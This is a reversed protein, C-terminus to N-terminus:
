KKEEPMNVEVVNTEEVLAITNGQKSLLSSLLGSLLLLALWAIGAMKMAADSRSEVEKLSRAVVVFGKDGNIKKMVAALRVGKQPQWTFRDESKNKLYAFVGSPPTPVTNKLKGSGAVVKGDKDYIVVFLSLSNEIDISSQGVIAEAPAGKDILDAIALTAEIQPDNANSRYVQQVLAYSSLTLVTVMAALVLFISRGRNKSEMQNM